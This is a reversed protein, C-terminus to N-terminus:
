AFRSIVSHPLNEPINQPCNEPHFLDISDGRLDEQAVLVAVGGVLVGDEEVVKVTALHAAEDVPEVVRELRVGGGGGGGPLVQVDARPQRRREARALLERRLRAAALLPAAPLAFPGALRASLLLRLLHPLPACVAFCKCRTLM